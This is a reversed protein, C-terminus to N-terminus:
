FCVWSQSWVRRSDKPCTEILSHWIECLRLSGSGNQNMATWWGSSNLGFALAPKAGPWPTRTSQCRKGRCELRLNIFTQEWREGAYLGSDGTSGSHKEPWSVYLLAHPLLQSPKEGWRTSNDSYVLGSGCWLSVLNSPSIGVRKKPNQCALNLALQSRILTRHIWCALALPSWVCLCEYVCKHLYM